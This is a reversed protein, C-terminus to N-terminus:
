FTNFQVQFFDEISGGEKKVLFRFFQFASGDAHIEYWRKTGGLLNGDRDTGTFGWMLMAGIAPTSLGIFQTVSFVSAKSEPFWVIADATEGPKLFIPGVEFPMFVTGEIVLRNEPPGAKRAM